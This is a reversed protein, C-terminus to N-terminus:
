NALNRGILHQGNGFGKIRKFTQDDPFFDSADKVSINSVSNSMDANDESSMRGKADPVPTFSVGMLLKLVTSSEQYIGM